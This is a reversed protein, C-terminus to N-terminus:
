KIKSQLRRPRCHGRNPLTDKKNDMKIDPQRTPIVRDTQINFDWLFKLMGNMLLSESNHMYWKNTHDFKMKKCLERYIVKEVWDHRSKYEKPALKIWESIIHNIAKERDDCLSRKSKQKTKEM